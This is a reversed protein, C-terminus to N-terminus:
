REEATPTGPSKAIVVPAEEMGQAHIKEGCPECLLDEEEDDDDEEVEEEMSEAGEEGQVGSM